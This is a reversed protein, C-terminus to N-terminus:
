TSGHMVVNENVGAQSRPQIGMQVIGLVINLLRTGIKRSLIKSIVSDSKHHHPNVLSSDLKNAGVNEIYLM